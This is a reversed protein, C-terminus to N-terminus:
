CFEEGDKLTFVMSSGVIQMTCDSSFYFLDDEFSAIVEGTEGNYISVYEYDGSRYLDRFKRWARNPSKGNLDIPNTGDRNSAHLRYEM